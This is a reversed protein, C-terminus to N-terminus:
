GEKENVTNNYFDEAEGIDDTEFAIGESDLFIFYPASEINLKPYTKDIMKIDIFTIKYVNKEYHNLLFEPKEMSSDSPYVLIVSLGEEKPLDQPYPYSSCGLIVLLILILNFLLLVRKM